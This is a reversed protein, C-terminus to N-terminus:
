FTGRFKKGRVAAGAGRSSGGGSPKGDDIDLKSPPNSASAAAHEPGDYAPVAGGEAFSFKKAKGGFPNSKAKAAFPDAKASGKPMGAAKSAPGARDSFPVGGAKMGGGGSSAGGASASGSGGASASSEHSFPPTNRSSKVGRSRSPTMAMEKPLSTRSTAM